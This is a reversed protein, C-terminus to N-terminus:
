EENQKLTIHLNAKLIKLMEFDQKLDKTCSQSSDFQPGFGLPEVAVNQAVQAAKWPGYQHSFRTNIHVLVLRISAVIGRSHNVMEEMKEGMPLPRPRHSQYFDLRIILPLLLLQFM